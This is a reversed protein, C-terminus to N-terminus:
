IDPSEAGYDVQVLISFVDHGIVSPFEAAVILTEVEEIDAPTIQYRDCIMQEAVMVDIHRCSSSYMHAKHQNFILQSDSEVDSLEEYTMLFIGFIPYMPDVCCFSKAMASAAARHASDCDLHKYIKTPDTKIVGLKVM